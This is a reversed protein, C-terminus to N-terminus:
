SQKQHTSTLVFSLHDFSHHSRFLWCVEYIKLTNTQLTHTKKKMQEYHRTIRNENRHKGHRECDTTTTHTHTHTDTWILQYTYVFYIVNYQQIHLIHSHILSSEVFSICWVKTTSPFRNPQIKWVHVSKEEKEQEGDVINIKKKGETEDRHRTKEEKEEFKENNKTTFANKKM